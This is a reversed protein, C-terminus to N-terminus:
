SQILKDYLARADEEGIWKVISVWVGNGFTNWERKDRDKTINQYIRILSIILIDHEEVPLVVHNARKMWLEIRNRAGKFDTVKYCGDEYKEELFSLGMKIQQKRKKAAEEVAQRAALEEQKAQQIKKLEKEIKNIFEVPKNKNPILDGAKRFIISRFLM